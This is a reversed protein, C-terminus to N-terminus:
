LRGMHMKKRLIQYFTQKSLKVFGIRQKAATVFVEDGMELEHINQGDIQLVANQYLDKMKFSLTDSAPFVIPRTALIHPNLPSVVIADMVPSLIPGGASLSYATSGTPSSAVIGDCRADIVLRRNSKVRIEILRPTNAKYIVADNLALGSVIVEGKRKLEIDLLMRTQIKYHNKFLSELSKQVDNLDSESLFGLNGLNIGLIPAGTDLAMQKARMITGDGGFVLICDLMPKKRALDRDCKVFEPLIQQQEKIGYFHIENKAHMAQLIDNVKNRHALNPNLYVGFNKM